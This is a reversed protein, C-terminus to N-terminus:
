IYGMLHTLLGYHQGRSTATGILVLEDAGQHHRLSLKQHRPLYTSVLGIVYGLKIIAQWSSAQPGLFTMKQM